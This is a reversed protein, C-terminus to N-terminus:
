RATIAIAAKQFRAFINVVLRRFQDFRGVPLFLAVGLSFVM